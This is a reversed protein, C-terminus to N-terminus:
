IRAYGDEFEKQPSWSQYGDRYVVFYDGSKPTGRAFLSPHVERREYGPHAFELWDPGVGGIQLAWVEKHCRWRPMERQPADSM